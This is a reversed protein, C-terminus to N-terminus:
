KTQCKYTKNTRKTSHKNEKCPSSYLSLSDFNLSKTVRIDVTNSNRKSKGERDHKCHGDNVEIQNKTFHNKLLNNETMEDCVGCVDTESRCNKSSKRPLYPSKAKSRQPPLPSVPRSRRVAPSKLSDKPYYNFNQFFTSSVHEDNVYHRPGFSSESIISTSGNLANLHMLGFGSDSDRTVSTLAPSMFM